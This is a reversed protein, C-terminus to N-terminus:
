STHRADLRSYTGVTWFPRYSMRSSCCGDMAYLVAVPLCASSPIPLIYTPMYPDCRACNLLTAHTVVQAM